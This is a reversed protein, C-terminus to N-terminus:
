RCNDRDKLPNFVSIDSQRESIAVSSNEESFGIQANGTVNFELSSDNIDYAEIVEDFLYLNFYINFQELFVGELQDCNMHPLGNNEREVAYDVAFYIAENHARAAANAAIGPTVDYETGTGLWALSPSVIEYDFPCTIEYARNTSNSEYVILSPETGTLKSVMYLGFDDFQYSECSIPFISSACPVEEYISNILDEANFVNENSYIPINTVETSCLEIILDKLIDATSQDM